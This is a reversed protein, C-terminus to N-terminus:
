NKIRIICIDDLKQMSSAAYGNAFALVYSLVKDTYLREGTKIERFTYYLTGNYDCTTIEYKKM